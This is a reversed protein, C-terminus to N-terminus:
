YPFFSIAQTNSDVWLNPQKKGDITLEVIVGNTQTYSRGLDFSKIKGLPSQPGWDELFENYPYYHCPEEVSCGWFTYAKEYQQQEVAELFAEVRREESWNRLFLWYVGYGVIGALIVYAVAKVLKDFGRSGQEYQELYGM